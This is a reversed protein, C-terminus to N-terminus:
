FSLRNGSRSNEEHQTEQTRQVVVALQALERQAKMSCTGIKLSAEVVKELRSSRSRERHQENEIEDNRLLEEQNEWFVNMHGYIANIEEKINRSHDKYNSFHVEAIFLLKHVKNCDENYIRRFESRSIKDTWDMYSRTQSYNAALMSMLEHVERIRDLNESTRKSSAEFM